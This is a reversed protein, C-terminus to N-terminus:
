GVTTMTLGGQFAGPPDVAYDYDFRKYRDQEPEVTEFYDTFYKDEGALFLRLGVRILILRCSASFSYEPMAISTATGM